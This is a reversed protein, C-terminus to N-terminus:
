GESRRPEASDGLVRLTFSITGRWIGGPELEVLGADIGRRQLNLADTACTYPEFCIASRGAPAYVVIERFGADARVVLEAAATPDRLACESWGNTTEVGTYVDDLELDGLPRPARFDRDAPVPLTRGTPLLSPDLEWLRSAPVKVLCSRRDGVAALPLRFWPHIGFGLPMPGGGVNRAEADLRVTDGRLTYAVRIRFPFPFQRLVGPHEEAVLSCAVRAGEPSVRAEDVRWPIESVLGHIAHGDRIPDLRYSKGRFAFRGGRVRNPYPFLIPTGFRTSSGAADEPGVLAELPAMAEDPASRRGSGGGSRFSYLNGGVSPAVKAGAGSEADRLVYVVTGLRDDRETEVQFREIM